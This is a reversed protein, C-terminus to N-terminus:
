KGYHEEIWKNNKDRNGELWEINHKYWYVLDKVGNELSYYPKWGLSEIKCSDIAYKVDHGLRDEIFDLKLEKGLENAIMDLLNLNTTEIGTGINYVEGSKGQNFAYLIGRCHDEVNIWDRKQNGDGYIPVPLDNMINYISLPIFKEINQYEGYNNSCRTIIIDTGFTKYYSIGLLDSSAKSASYPSSPNLIDTETFCQNDSASGYVEDTSVLVCRLNRKKSFELVKHTGLINTHLFVDPNKISRDVHTEAAFHFISDIDESLNDFAESDCITNRKIILNIHNVDVRSEDSAYGCNDIISVKVGYRLLLRAFSSGIFGFGGTILAHKM